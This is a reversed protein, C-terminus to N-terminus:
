GNKARRYTRGVRRLPRGVVGPGRLPGGSWEWGQPLAKRGSRARRFPRRVVELGGLQGGSCRRGELLAKQGSWARLPAPRGSGVKWSPSWVM